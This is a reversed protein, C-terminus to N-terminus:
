RPPKWVEACGHPLHRRLVRLVSGLLCIHILISLIAIIRFSLYEGMLEQHHDANKNRTVARREAETVEVDHQSAAFIQRVDKHTVGVKVGSAAKDAAVSNKRGMNLVSFRRIVEDGGLFGSDGAFQEFQKCTIAGEKSNAKLNREEEDETSDGDDDNSLYLEFAKKLTNMTDYLLLLVEDSAISNRMDSGAPMKTLVPLLHDHYIANLAAPATPIAAKKNSAYQGIRKLKAIAKKPVTIKKYIQSLTLSLIALILTLTESYYESCNKDFGCVLPYCPTLCQIM